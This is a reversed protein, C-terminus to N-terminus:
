WRKRDDKWGWFKRERWRSVGYKIKNGQNNKMQKRESYQNKDIREKKKINEVDGILPKRKCIFFILQPSTNRMKLILLNPDRSFHCIIFLSVYSKASIGTQKRAIFEESFMKETM